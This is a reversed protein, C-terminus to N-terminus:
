GQRNSAKTEGPTYQNVGGPGIRARNTVESYLPSLIDSNRMPVCLPPTAAPFRRSGGALPPALRPRRKSGRGRPRPPMSAAPHGTACSRYGRNPVPVRADLQPPRRPRRRQGVRLQGVRGPLTALTAINSYRRHRLSPLMRPWVACEPSCASSRGAVVACEAHATLLGQGVPWLHRTCRHRPPHCKDCHPGPRSTPSGSHLITNPRGCPLM